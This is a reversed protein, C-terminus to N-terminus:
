TTGGEAKQIASEIRRIGWGFGALEKGTGRLYAGNGDDRTVLADLQVLAWRLAGLLEPAAAVLHANAVNEPHYLIDGCNFTRGDPCAVLGDAGGTRATWPGPTHVLPKFM